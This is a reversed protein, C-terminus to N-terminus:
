ARRQSRLPLQPLETVNDADVAQRRSSEHVLADVRLSLAEIQAKFKVREAGIVGGIADIVPALALRIKDDFESRLRAAEADTLTAQPKPSPQPKPMGRKWKLLADDAYNRPQQVEIDRIRDLAAFATNFIARANEDM